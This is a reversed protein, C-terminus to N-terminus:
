SWEPKMYKVCKDTHTHKFCTVAKMIPLNDVWKSFRFLALTDEGYLVHKECLIPGTLHPRTVSHQSESVPVGHQYSLLAWRLPSLTTVLGEDAELSAWGMAEETGRHGDEPSFSHVCMVAAVPAHGSGLCKEM